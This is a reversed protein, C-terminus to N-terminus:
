FKIDIEATTQWNKNTDASVSVQVSTSDSPKFQKEVSSFLTSLNQSRYVGVGISKSEDGCNASAGAGYLQGSNNTTMVPTVNFKKM